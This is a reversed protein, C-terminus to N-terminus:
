ILLLIHGPRRLCAALDWTDSDILDRSCWADEMIQLATQLPGLLGPPQLGEVISRFLSEQDPAALCGAVCFPWAITRLVAWSLTRQMLQQIICTVHHRIESSSPQWGLVVILLYLAAAHAWIRTVLLSQTALMSAQGNCPTFIDWPSDTSPTAEARTLNTMLMSKIATARLVLEMMDLAAIAKQHKKWADLASIKAVAVMAWNQCGMIDELRIQPEEDKETPWQGNGLIGDHYRYLKPEEGLATSAIIDDVLLLASFFRFAMQESSPAVFTPFQKPWPLGHGRLQQMIMAFRSVYGTSHYVVTDGGELAQQFIEIAADLHAQCNEFSSVATEFRQLLLVCGMIQTARPLHKSVGEVTLFRLEERLLGFTGQIHNLLKQWATRKCRGPALKEITELGLSFLFSSLSLITQEIAQHDAIFDIIWARGRDLMSPQYFPSLFPFYFDLYCVVLGRDLGAWNSARQLDEDPFPLEHSSTLSITSSVSPFGLPSPYVNGYRSEPFIRLTDQSLNTPPNGTDLARLETEPRGLPATDSMPENFAKAYALSRRSPAKDKVEQKLQERMEQQKEGGDVWDPKELTYHCTILLESCAYCIPQNRDCKKRRLHCTWCGAAKRTAAHSSM